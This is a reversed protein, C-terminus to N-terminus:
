CENKPLSSWKGFSASILQNYLTINSGYNQGKFALMLNFNFSIIVM